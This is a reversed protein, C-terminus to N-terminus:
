QQVQLKESSTTSGPSGELRARLRRRFGAPLPLDGLRAMENEDLTRGEVLARLCWIRDGPRELSEVAKLAEEFSEPLGTRLITALARRRKWGSPFSALLAEFGKGEPREGAQLAVRLIRFRRVLFHEREIRQHLSAPAAGAQM